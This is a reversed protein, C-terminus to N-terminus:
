VDGVLTMAVTWATHRVTLDHGYEHQEVGTTETVELREIQAIDAPM